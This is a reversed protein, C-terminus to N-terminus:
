VTSWIEPNLAAAPTWKFLRSSLGFHGLAANVAGGGAGAHLTIPALTQSSTGTRPSGGLASLVIVELTKALAGNATTGGVASATIPALTTALRASPNIAAFGSPPLYTFASAGFNATEAESALLSVAPFYPGAALGSIDLGGTNSAPSAAGSNNWNGGNKRFWIRSNTLDLAADIVDGTTFAQITQLSTNNFYVAGDAQYGVGNSTSGHYTNTASSANCVGTMCAGNAAGITVSFFVKAAAPLSPTARVLGWSSVADKTAILDGGSLTVASSKDSPNWTTAM